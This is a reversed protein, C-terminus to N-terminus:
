LDLSKGPHISCGATKVTMMAETNDSGFSIIAHAGPMKQHCVCCRECLKWECTVCRKSATPINASEGDGYSSCQDCLKGFESKGYPAKAEALNRIFFNSTLSGIGGEPVAFSERCVPCNAQNGPSTDKCYDKICKLCFTHLCPLSKPDSVEELCIPCKILEDIYDQLEAM